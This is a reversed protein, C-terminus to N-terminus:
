NEPRRARQARRAGIARGAAGFQAATAIGSGSPHMLSAAPATRPSRQDSGGPAGSGPPSNGPTKRAPGRRTQRPRAAGACAPLVSPRPGGDPSPGSRSRPGDPWRTLGSSASRVRDSPKAVRNRVSSARARSSPTSRCSRSSASHFARQSAVADQRNGFGARPRMRDRCGADCRGM